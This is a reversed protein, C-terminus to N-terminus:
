KNEITNGVSDIVQKEEPRITEDITETEDTVQVSQTKFFELLEEKQKALESQLKEEYAKKVEEIDNMTVQNIPQTQEVSPTDPKPQTKELADYFHMM